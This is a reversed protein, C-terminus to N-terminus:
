FNQNSFLRDIQDTNGGAYFALISTLALDAESYSPYM